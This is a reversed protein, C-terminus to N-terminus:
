VEENTCFATSAAEFGVTNEDPIDDIDVLSNSPLRVGNLQLFM